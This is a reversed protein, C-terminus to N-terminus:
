RDVTKEITRKVRSSPTQGIGVCVCVRVCVCVCVPILIFLSSVSSLIKSKYRTIRSPSPTKIQACLAALQARDQWNRGFLIVGGALPHKLRRRDVPTLSLGAVDLILPAHPSM